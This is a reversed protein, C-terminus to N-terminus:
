NGQQKLYEEARSKWYDKIMNVMKICEEKATKENYEKFESYTHGSAEIADKEYGGAVGVLWNGFISKKYKIIYYKLGDLEFNGVLEIKNPKKGLENPHKLWNSLSEIAAKEQVTYNMKDDGEIYIRKFAIFCILVIIIVIFIILIKQKM